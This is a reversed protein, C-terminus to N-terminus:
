ECPAAGAAHDCHMSYVGNSPDADADSVAVDLHYDYCAQSAGEADGETGSDAANYWDECTAEGEWSGCTDTFLSCFAEAATPEVPEESIEPVGLNLIDFDINPFDEYWFSDSVSFVKKTGDYPVLDYCDLSEDWECPVTTITDDTNMGALRAYNWDYGTFDFGEDSSSDSHNIHIYQSVFAEKNADFYDGIDSDAYSDSLRSEHEATLAGYSIGFHMGEMSIDAYGEDTVTFVRADNIRACSDSTDNSFGLFTLYGEFGSWTAVSAGDLPYMGSSSPPNDWPYEQADLIAAQNVFTAIMTCINENDDGAGESFFDMNTYHVQVYADAAEGSDLSWGGLEATTQDWSGLFEFGVAVAELPEDEEEIIPDDTPSSAPESSPQSTSTDTTVPKDGCAWLSFLGLTLFKM